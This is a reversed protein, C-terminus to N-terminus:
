RGHAIYGIAGGVVLSIWFWPRTLFLPHPQTLLAVDTTSLRATQATVIGTAIGNRARTVRFKAILEDDHLPDVVLGTRSRKVWHAGTTAFTFTSDGVSTIDFRAYAPQADLRASGALGIAMAVAWVLPRRPRGYLPSVLFSFPSFWTSGGAACPRHSAPLPSAM